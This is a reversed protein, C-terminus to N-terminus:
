SRGGSRRDGTGPLLQQGTRVRAVGLRELDQPRILLQDATAAVQTAPRQPHGRGTRTRDRLLLQGAHGLHQRAGGPGAGRGLRGRRDGADDPADARGAVAGFLEAIAAGAGQREAEQDNAAGPTDVLTLVPIGLRDAFRILRTATRFGAARNATGSTYVILAPDGDGATEEPLTGM